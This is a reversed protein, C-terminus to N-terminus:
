VMAGGKPSMGLMGSGVWTLGDFVQFVTSGWVNMEEMFDRLGWLAAGLVGWTIQHNNSNWVNLVMMHDAFVFRGGPLEGDGISHLHAYVSNYADNLVPLVTVPIVTSTIHLSLFTQTGPVCWILNSRPQLSPSIPVVPKSLPELDTTRRHLPSDLYDATHSEM